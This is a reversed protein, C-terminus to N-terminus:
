PLWSLSDSLTYYGVFAVADILFHAIVFPGVRGWRRYLVGFLVGMVANGLFGGFGQYLHYSGRVLSAIAIALWGAIGAQDFRHLVYGLMVVEELIANQAAVLLLMPITWWFQSATVAAIQVSLGAAYAALYLVLGAGGVLVALVAGRRLDGRKDRGDLGLVSLSEGGRVLLYLALAVPGMAILVGTLQYALDLWPRDPTRSVVISASQDALDVDVTLRDLIALFARLASAGLSVWLVVVVEALYPWWRVRTDPEAGVDTM